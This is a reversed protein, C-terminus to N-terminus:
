EREVGPLGGLRKFRLHRLSMKCRNVFIFVRRLLSVKSNKVIFTDDAEKSSIKKIMEHQRNVYIM